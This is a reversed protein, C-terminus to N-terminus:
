IMSSKNTSNVLSIFLRIKDVIGWGVEITANISVDWAAKFM